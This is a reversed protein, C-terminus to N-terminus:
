TTSSRSEASLCGLHGGPELESTQEYVARAAGERPGSRNGEPRMSGAQLVLHSRPENFIDKFAHWSAFAAVRGHLDPAQNLWEYVTVNPNPGYENSNIRPDPHGTLM